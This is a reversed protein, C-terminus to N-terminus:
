FKRLVDGNSDYVAGCNACEYLGWTDSIIYGFGDGKCVPCPTEESFADFPYDWPYSLLSAPTAKPKWTGNSAMLCTGPIEQWQGALLTHEGRLMLAVRSGETTMELWHQLTDLDRGIGERIRPYLEDRIYLQTDSLKETGMSLIGNHVFAADTTFIGTQMLDKRKNSVPFPHCWQPAIRGSTGIRCHYLAEAWEPVEGATELFDEVTMLGKVVTIPDNIHNRWCIGAGDPNNEFCRRLVARSPRNEEFVKHIIICM